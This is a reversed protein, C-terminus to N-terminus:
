EDTAKKYGEEAFTKQQESNDQAEMSKSWQAALYLPMAMQCVHSALGLFTLGVIM